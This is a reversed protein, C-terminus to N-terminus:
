PRLPSCEGHASGIGHAQPQRSPQEGGCRRHGERVPNPLQIRNFQVDRIATRRGADLEIRIATKRTESTTCIRVGRPAPSDESVMKVGLTRRFTVNREPPIKSACPDERPDELVGKFRIHLRNGDMSSETAARQWTTNFWDDMGRWGFGAPDLLDRENDLWLAEPRGGRLYSVVIRPPRIGKFSLALEEIDLPEEFWYEGPPCNPLAFPAIDLGNM